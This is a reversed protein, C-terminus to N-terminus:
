DVNIETNHERQDEFGDVTIEGDHEIKSKADQIRTAM